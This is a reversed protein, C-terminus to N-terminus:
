PQTWLYWECNLKELSKDLYPQHLYTRAWVFNGGLGTMRLISSPSLGFHSGNFKPYWLMIRVRGMTSTTEFMQFNNDLVELAIKVMAHWINFPSTSDLTQNCKFCNQLMWLAACMATHTCCHRRSKPIKCSWCILWRRFVFGCWFTSFNCMLRPALVHTYVLIKCDSSWAQFVHHKPKDLWAQSQCKSRKLIPATCM